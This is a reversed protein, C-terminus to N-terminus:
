HVSPTESPKIPIVDLLRQRDRLYPFVSVDYQPLGAM